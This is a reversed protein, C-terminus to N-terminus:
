ASVLCNLLSERTGGLTLTFPARPQPPPLFSQWTKDSKDSLNHNSPQACCLTERERKMDFMNIDTNCVKRDQQVNKFIHTDIDRETLLTHEWDSELGKITNTTSDTTEKELSFVNEVVRTFPDPPDKNPFNRRFSNERGRRNYTNNNHRNKKAYHRCRRMCFLQKQCADTQDDYQRQYVDPNVLLCVVDPSDKTVHYGWLIFENGAGVDMETPIFYFEAGDVM